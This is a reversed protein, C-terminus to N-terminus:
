LMCLYLGEQIAHSIASYEAEASRLAVVEQLKSGCSIAAGGSMFVFGSRGRKTEADSGYRTDSYGWRQEKARGWGGGECVSTGM